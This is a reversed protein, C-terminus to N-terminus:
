RRKYIVYKWKDNSELTKVFEFNSDMANLIDKSKHYIFNREYEIGNYTSYQKAEDGERYVLLLYGGKKLVEAINRFTLNLQSKEIHIIGAICAVGDFMGLYKYSELMDGLVFQINPNKQKAIELEKDSFDLGVVDAGLNKLRMSEYGAGCCLDLIRPSKKNVYGLFTKLFPIMSENSYWNEAWMQASDNYFDKCNKM